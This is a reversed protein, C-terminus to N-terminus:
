ITLGFGFRDALVKLARDFQRADLEHITERLSDKKLAAVIVSRPVKQDIVQIAAPRKFRWWSSDADDLFPGAIRAVGYIHVPVHSNAPYGRCILVLDDKRMDVFTRIKGAARSAGRPKNRYRRYRRRLAKRLEDSSVASPNVDLDPWGIAVVDEAQFNQWHSIGHSGETTKLVWYRRPNDSGAKATLSAVVRQKRYKARTDFIQKAVAFDIKHSNGFVQEVWDEIEKVLTGEDNVESDLLICAEQNDLLGAGTLNASGVMVWRTGSKRHVVFVKAHLKGADMESPVFRVTGHRALIELKYPNNFQFDDSVVLKLRPVGALVSLMEQDPNFYAVAIRAARASKLERILLEGLRVRAFRM